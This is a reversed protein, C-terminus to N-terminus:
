KKPTEAFSHGPRLRLIVVGEQIRGIKKPQQVEIILEMGNASSTPSMCREWLFKDLNGDRHYDTLKAVLHNKMGNLAEEATESFVTLRFNHLTCEWQKAEEDLWLTYKIPHIIDEM